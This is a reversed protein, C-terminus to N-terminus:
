TLASQLVQFNGAPIKNALDMAEVFLSDMTAGEPHEKQFFWSHNAHIFETPNKAPVVWLEWVVHGQKNRKALWTGTEREEVNIGNRRQWPRGLVVPFPMSGGVWLDTTTKLNGLYLNVGHCRGELKTEHQGADRMTISSTKDMPTGSSMYTRPTMIDLESGCDILADVTEGNDFKVKVCILRADSHHYQMSNVQKPSSFQDEEPGGQMMSNSQIRTVRLHDQMRKAILPSSGLLESMTVSVATSLVKKILNDPDLLRQVESQLRSVPPIPTEQPPTSAKPHVTKGGKVITQGPQLAAPPSFAV